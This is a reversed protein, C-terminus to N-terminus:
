IEKFNFKILFLISYIQFLFSYTILVLKCQSTILCALLTLLYILNNFMYNFEALLQM